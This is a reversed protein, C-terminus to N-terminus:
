RVCQIGRGPETTAGSIPGLGSDLSVEFRTPGLLKISLKHREPHFFLKGNEFLGSGYYEVGSMGTSRLEDIYQEYPRRRIQSDVAEVQRLVEGVESCREQLQRVIRRLNAGPKVCIKNRGNTIESHSDRDKIAQANLNAQLADVHQLLFAVFPSLDPRRTVKVYGGDARLTAAGSIFDLTAYDVDKRGKLAFVNAVYGFFTIHFRLNKGM